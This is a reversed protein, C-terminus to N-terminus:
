LDYIRTGTDSEKIYLNNTWVRVTFEKGGKSNEYSFKNTNHKRVVM